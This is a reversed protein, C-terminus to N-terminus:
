PHAGGASTANPGNTAPRVLPVARLRLRRVAMAYGDRAVFAPAGIEYVENLRDLSVSNDLYPIEFYWATPVHGAPQYAELATVVRPSVTGTRALTRRHTRADLQDVTFWNGFLPLIITTSDNPRIQETADSTLQDFRTFELNYVLQDRGAGCCEHTLSTIMLMSRDGPTFTGWLARSVPDITRTASVGLLVVLLALVASRIARSVDLRVLAAYGVVLALPYVPLYYRANGYTIFRTLLWIEGVLAATVLGLAAADTGALARPPLSRSRRSAGIAADTLFLATPVWLFSVVLMLALAALTSQDVTGPRFLTMILAGPGANSWVVPPASATTAYRAALAGRVANTAMYGFVLLIPLALTWEALAARAIARVPVRAPPERRLRLVYLLLACTAASLVNFRILNLLTLAALVVVGLWYAGNPILRRLADRWLAVLLIVGYVLVGPEKSFVLLVGFLVVAWRRGELVAALACISFILMGFDLGPQVASALIVPHVLFAAVVLSREVRHEPSPFVVRLLRFLAGAGLALLLANMALMPIPSGAAFRQALVLLAVYSQSIHGACRYGGVDLLNRTADVVCESYIRGDWLPIYGRRSWLMLAAALAAVALVLGSLLRPWDRRPPLAAAAPPPSATPTFTTPQTMADPVPM